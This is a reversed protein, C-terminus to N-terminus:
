LPCKNNIESATAPTTPRASMREPMNKMSDKIEYVFAELNASVRLEAYLGVLQFYKERATKKETAAISQLSIPM